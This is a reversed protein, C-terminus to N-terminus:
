FEVYSKNNSKLDNKNDDNEVHIPINKIGNFDVFAIRSNEKWEVKDVIDRIINLQESKIIFCMKKIKKLSFHYIYIYLKFIM